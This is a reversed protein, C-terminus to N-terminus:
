EPETAGGGLPVVGDVVFELPLLLKSTGGNGKGRRRGVRLLLLLFLTGNWSSRSQPSSSKIIGVYWALTGSAQLIKYGNRLYIVL